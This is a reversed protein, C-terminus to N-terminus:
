EFNDPALIKIGKLAEINDEFPVPLLFNPLRFTEMLGKASIEFIYFVFLSM